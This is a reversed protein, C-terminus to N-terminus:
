QSKEIDSEKSSIPLINKSYIFRRLSFTRKPAKLSEDNKNSSSAHRANNYLFLGIFTITIGIGQILTVSDGFFILSVLIVFIRKVLGTISYTVPNVHHILTFAFCSQCFNFISNIIINFLLMAKNVDEGVRLGNEEGSLFLQYGEVKFWWPTLLIFAQLSFYFLVNFKDLKESKSKYNSLVKKTFINQLAFIFCSFFACLFGIINFSSKNFCVLMVGFVLPILSFYTQKSYKEHFFISYIGIIFLPSLAKITQVFNVSVLSLAFTNLLHGFIQFMSLPLTQKVVYKSIKQLKTFGAFHSIGSYFVISLFQLYTITFPHKYQKLVKKQYNSHFASACYWGIILFGLKLVNFSIYKNIADKILTKSNNNQYTKLYETKKNVGFNILTQEDSDDINILTNSSLNSSESLTPSNSVVRQYNNNYKINNNNNM